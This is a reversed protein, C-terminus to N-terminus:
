TKEIFFSSFFVFIAIIIVVLGSSLLLQQVTFMDALPGFLIMGLPLACSSSVQMFSFIRGHMEPAVKEQITVTIPTNYCPATIGILMNFILYFTFTPAISLGVMILGYVGGALITTNIKKKFGGWVAILLGGLVMGLSYTMQSISLKWVEDGFTRTVLLPTLFASPSILFLVTLQFILLRKIFNNQRLYRFGSKIENIHSTANRKNTNYPAIFVFSTILVGIIATFVDVLLIIEFPAISLIAGSIAPSIFMMLSSLTSNIGSIKMLKDKPVIQPIIANVAPTQVGTGVSRLALVVFLLEINTYGLFFSIALVLTSLAILSDSIMIIKKRNYKDVWVGAFISVVIQPLFACLTSLTLMKGSSTTLTIYWVIAYQVLSSGFLSITQATMFRIIASKWNQNKMFIVGKQFLCLPSYM